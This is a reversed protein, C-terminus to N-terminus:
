SKEFEGSKSRISKLFKIAYYLGITVLVPLLIAPGLSGYTTVAEQIVVAQLVELEFRYGVGQILIFSTLFITLIANKKFPLKGYIGIFLGILMLLHAFIKFTSPSLFIALLELIIASVMLVVAQKFFRSGSLIIIYIFSFVVMMMIALMIGEANNTYEILNVMGEEYCKIFTSDLGWGGTLM